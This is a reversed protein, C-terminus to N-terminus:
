GSAGRAIRACRYRDQSSPAIWTGDHYYVYGNDELTNGRVSISDIERQTGVKVVYQQGPSISFRFRDLVDKRGTADYRVLRGSQDRRFTYVFRAAPDDPTTCSWTGILAPLAVTAILM